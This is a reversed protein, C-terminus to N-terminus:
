GTGDTMADVRAAVSQEESFAILNATPPGSAPSNVGLRAAGCELTM